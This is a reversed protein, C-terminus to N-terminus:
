QSFGLEKLEEPSANILGKFRKKAKEDQFDQNKEAFTKKDAKSDNSRRIWNRWTALWDKKKGKSGSINVWYDRFKEGEMKIQQDTLNSNEQAWKGYEMPLVWKDSIALSKLLAPANASIIALETSGEKEKTLPKHNNTIPEQKAKKQTLEPNGSIVQQTKRPRGGKKGNVRSVEAKASYATLEKQARKQIWGKKTLNFFEQLIQQTETKHDKLRLLRLLKEIDPEIPKESEYYIDLLRRYALDEIPSLHATSKSYDGINFQYYYM